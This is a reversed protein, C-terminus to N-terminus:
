RVKGLTLVEIAETMCVFSKEDECDSMFLEEEPKLFAKDIGPIRDREKSFSGDTNSGSQEWSSDHKGQKSHANLSDPQNRDRMFEIDSTVENAANSTDHGKSFGQLVLTDKDESGTSSNSELALSDILNFKGRSTSGTFPGTTATPTEETVEASKDPSNDSIINIDNEKNELQSQYNKLSITTTNSAPFADVEMSDEQSETTGKSIPPVMTNQEVIDIPMIISADPSQTAKTNPVRQESPFGNLHIGTPSIQERPSPTTPTPLGHAKSDHFPIKLDGFIAGQLPTNESVDNLKQPKNLFRLLLHTSTQFSSSATSSLLLPSATTTITFGNRFRDALDRFFNM